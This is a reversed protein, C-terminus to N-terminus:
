RLTYLYAAADGAEQESLGLAPMATGKVQAPPDRLWALLAEPRNPLTGAIMARRAFGALPPGVKGRAGTIGPIRHCAGCEYRAIVARGREPDGFDPM